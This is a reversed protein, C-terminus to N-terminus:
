SHDFLKNYYSKESAGCHQGCATDTVHAHFTDNFHAITSALYIGVAMAALDYCVCHLSWQTAYVCSIYVASIHICTYQFSSLM